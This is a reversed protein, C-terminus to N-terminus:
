YLVRCRITAPITRLRDLLGDIHATDLDMVVYGLNERTQLYQSVINIGSSSIVQNLQQMVGPENHHIHLLRRMQDQDPLSVEPFNVASLTSGNDSYRVLKDAVEIAINEQAELTSGGIHPTLIVQDLGRLESAFEEDNSRPERPFVDIAAGSLHGSVLAERLAPIDVVTGRSANVLCAGPRMMALESASIMNKTQATAPVHLSVADSSKLLEELSGVAHANGLPLKNVIDYYIVQMGLSEAIIGLQTGIHGYGIIGLTKGRVENSRSATKLWGGRHAAMNKAPIGRMLMIIEALALEAVSRTNAYPANFVPVGIRQAASLDVQNTGICFCGVATLKSAKSLLEADLQTRSRIGLFHVDELAHALEARSQTGPRMEVQTYGARHLVEQARPHIGELLLFKIKEKALSYTQGTNEAM